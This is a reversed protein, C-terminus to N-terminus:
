AAKKTAKVPKSSKAVASKFETLSAAVRQNIIEAAELSSKNIMDTLEKYNSVSREYVSKVLDTQKAVKQEPSGESIIEQAVTSNDEVIQSLLESQRQAVAQVGEFALQQAETLAQFNKRQLEMFSDADFPMNQVSPMNAFVDNLDNGFFKTYDFQSMTITEMQLFNISHLM